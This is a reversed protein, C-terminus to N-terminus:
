VEPLNRYCFLALVCGVATAVSLFSLISLFLGLPTGIVGHAGSIRGLLLGVAFALFALGVYGPVHLKGRAAAVPIAVIILVCALVLPVVFPLKAATLSLSELSALATFAKAFVSFSPIV